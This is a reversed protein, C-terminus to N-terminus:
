QALQHDVCRPRPGNDRANYRPSEDQKYSADHEEDVAIFGLRPIPAWLASRTGLALPAEGSRIRRWEAARRKEPYASHLCAVRDGFRARFRDLLQPTLGIEPVLILAGRDMRLAEEALRIYVETKGSGTVGHLLTSSYEGGRIDASIADFAAQQAATLTVPAYESPAPDDVGPEGPGPEEVDDEFIVWGKKEMAACAARAGRLLRELERVMIRDTKELLALAAEQRPARRALKEREEAGPPGPSGPRAPADALRVWRVLAACCARPDLLPSTSSFVSSFSAFFFFLLFVGVTFFLM